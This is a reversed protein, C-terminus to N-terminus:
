VVGVAFYNSFEHDNFHYKYFVRFKPPHRKKQGHSPPKVIDKRESFIKHDGNVRSNKM